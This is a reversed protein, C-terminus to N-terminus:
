ASIGEAQDETMQCLMFQDTDMYSACHDLANTVANVAQKTMRVPLPPIEAIEQALANARNLVERDEAVEQALGWRLAEDSGIREALIVIQKARAPGVLHVLRPLTQWSMNMGLVLEPVRFFAGNGMIRFDCSVALSVGGGVCHGEIAAITFQELSEWAQCMKPGFSLLKRRKGLPAGMAEFLEPDKLDLGACFCHESGTLVVATTDLDDKLSEAAEVLERLAQLSLANLKDGRDFRVVAVRGEREIRVHKWDM